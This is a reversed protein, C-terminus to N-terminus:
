ESGKQTNAAHNKTMKVKIVLRIAGITCSTSVLCREARYGQGYRNTELNPRSFQACGTKRRTISTM